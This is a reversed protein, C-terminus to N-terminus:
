RRSPRCSRGPLEREDRRAHQSRRQWRRFMGGAAAIAALNTLERDLTALQATLAGRREAEQIPETLADLAVDLAMTVVAPQLVEDRLVNLVAREAIDKLVEKGNVCVHRGRTHNCYCGYRYSRTRGHARSRVVFGGGCVGCRSLGSLLYKTTGGAPPAGM